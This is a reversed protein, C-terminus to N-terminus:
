PQHTVEPKAKSFFKLPIYILFFLAISVPIGIVIWGILGYGLQLSLDSLATMIDAQFATKVGEFTIPIHEIGMIAEGGYIFPLFLLVHMPSLAYTMFLALPLNLRLYIALFTVVPTAVGILPIVGLFSGLVISLAMEKPTLGQSFVAKTKKYWKKNKISSWNM